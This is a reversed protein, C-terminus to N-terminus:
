TRLVKTDAREPKKFDGGGGTGFLVDALDNTIGWWYNANYYHHQMHAQRLRLGYATKPQYRPDHHTFHM